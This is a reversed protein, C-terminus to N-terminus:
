ELQKLKKNAFKRVQEDLDNKARDRLLILTQPHNPYQKIIAELATLRPNGEWDKQRQFLDNTARDCLFELIWSEDKWGQAIEKVAAQRVDLHKDQQASLKLLPLTEPHEKWGQAIER